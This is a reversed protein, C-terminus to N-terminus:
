RHITHNTISMFICTFTFTINSDYTCITIIILDCYYSCFAIHFPQLTFFVTYFQQIWQQQPYSWQHQQQFQKVGQHWPISATGVACECRDANGTITWTAVLQQFWFYTSKTHQMAKSWVYYSYFWCFMAKIVCFVFLM